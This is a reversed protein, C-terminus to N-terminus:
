FFVFKIGQEDCTYYYAEYFICLHKEVAYSKLFLIFEALYSYQRTNTKSDSAM